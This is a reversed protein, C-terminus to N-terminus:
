KFVKRLLAMLGMGGSFGALFVLGLLIPIIGLQQIMGMQDDLGWEEVIKGDVIRAIIISSVTIQKGTPPIGIFAGKLTGRSTYRTVVKDGETIMDEVTLHVDPFAKLFMDIARKTGEPTTPLFPPLTHDVHNPAIFEDIVALNKKNFVEELFRSMLVKNEETSMSYVGKEKYQDACAALRFPLFICQWFLAPLSAM